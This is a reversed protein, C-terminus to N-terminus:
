PTSLAPEWAGPDAKLQSKVGNTGASGCGLRAVVSNFSRGM